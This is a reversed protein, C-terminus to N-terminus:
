KGKELPVRGSLIAPQVLPTAGFGLPISRLAGCRVLGTVQAVTLGMREACEKLDLYDDNKGDDCKILTHTDRPIM